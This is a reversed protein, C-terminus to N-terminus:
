EKLFKSSYVGSTTHIQVFYFGIPLGKVDISLDESPTVVNHFISEGQLTVVEIKISQELLMSESLMPTVIETSPNPFLVFTKNETTLTAKGIATFDYQGDYDM